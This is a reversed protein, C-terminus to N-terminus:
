VAEGIGILLLGDITGRVAATAVRGLRQAPEGLLRTGVVQFQRLLTDSDRFMFFVILLAFLLTTIRRAAQGGIIRGWETLSQVEAGSLPGREDQLHANLWDAVGPGVMPLGSVWEPAEFGGKRVEIYWRIIGRIEQAGEVIAIALPALVAVAI